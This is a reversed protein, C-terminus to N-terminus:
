AGEAEIRVIAHLLDRREAGSLAELRRIGLPDIEERLLRLEAPSPLLTETLDPSRELEFGTHAQVQEATVGPHLSTLRMRRAEPTGGEFDFQGLDSM